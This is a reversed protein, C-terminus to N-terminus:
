PSLELLQSRYAPITLVLQEGEIELPISEQRLVDFAGRPATKSGTKVSLEGLPVRVTLPENTLNAFGVLPVDSGDDVTKVFSFVGDNGNTLESIRNSRVTPRETWLQNLRRVTLLTENGNEIAEAFEASTTIGRHLQRPDFANADNIPIGLERFGEQVRRAETQAHAVNNVAGIEDGYYVAPAGDLMYQVFYGTAIRSPNENLMPAQRGGVSMGNKYVVGGKEGFYERLWQWNTDRLFGVYAEDHHRQYNLQVAGDPLRPQSFIREWLPASTQFYLAELLAGQHEFNYIADGELTRASNELAGAAELRGLLEADQLYRAAEKSNRVVEPVVIAKPSVDLIFSKFLAQVAHTELFGDTPTGPKKIWHAMADMRIGMVGQNLMDGIIDFQAELVEPNRLNLDVQFPYFTHFVQHEEGDISIKIFHDRKVDPFILLEEWEEGTQINRYQAFIDGRAEREGTKVWDDLIVYHDRYRPDGEQLGRFWPHSTSTHNGPFDVIVRTGHERAEQMLAAFGSAGGLDAAPVYDHVDYGGDLRSSEYHPRISVNRFGAWDLYGLMNATSEFTGPTVSTESGFYQVYLEYSPNNYWDAPVTQLWATIEPSQATRARAVARWYAAEIETAHHPSIIEALTRVRAAKEPISSLVAQQAAEMLQQDVNAVNSSLETTELSGIELASTRPVRPPKTMRLEEAVRAADDISGGLLQLASTPICPPKVVTAERLAREILIQHQAYAPATLLCLAGWGVLLM